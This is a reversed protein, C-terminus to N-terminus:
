MFHFYNKKKATKEVKIKLFTKLINKKLNYRMLDTEMKAELQNTLQHMERFKKMLFFITLRMKEADYKLWPDLLSM